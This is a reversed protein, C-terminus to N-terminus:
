KSHELSTEELLIVQTGIERPVFLTDGADLEECTHDPKILTIAAVGFSIGPTIDFRKTKKDQTIIKGAVMKNLRHRIRCFKRNKEYKGLKEGYLLTVLEANTSPEAVLLRLITKDMEDLPDGM